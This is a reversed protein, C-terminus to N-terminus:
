SNQQQQDEAAADPDYSQAACDFDKLRERLPEEVTDKIKDLEQCFTLVQEPTDMDTADALTEIAKAEEPHGKEVLEDRYWQAVPGLLCPKCQVKNEEQIWEAMKKLAACGDSM